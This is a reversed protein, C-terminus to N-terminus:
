PLKVFPDEHQDTRIFQENVDIRHASMKQNYPAFFSDPNASIRHHPSVATNKVIELPAAFSVAIMCLLPLLYRM